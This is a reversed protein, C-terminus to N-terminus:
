VHKHHPNMFGWERSIALYKYIYILEILFHSLYIKPPHTVLYIYIYQGWWILLFYFNELKEPKRFFFLRGWPNGFLKNLTPDQHPCYIYMDPQHKVRVKNSMQEDNVLSFPYGSRENAWWSWCLGSIYTWHYVSVSKGVSGPPIRQFVWRKQPPFIPYEIGLWVRSKACDLGPLGNPPARSVLTDPQFHDTWSCGQLFECPGWDVM